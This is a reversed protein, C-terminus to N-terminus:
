RELNQQQQEDLRRKIADLRDDQGQHDMHLRWQQASNERRDRDLQEQLQQRTVRDQWTEGYIPQANALRALVLLMGCLITKM